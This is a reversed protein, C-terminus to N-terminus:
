RLCSVTVVMRRARRSPPILSWFIARSRRPIFVTFYSTSHMEILSTWPLVDFVSVDNEQHVHGEEFNELIMELHLENLVRKVRAIGSNEELGM